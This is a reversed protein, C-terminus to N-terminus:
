GFGGHPSPSGAQMSVGGPPFPFDGLGAGLENGVVAVFGLEPTVVGFSGPEVFVEDGPPPEPPPPLPLPLPPLAGTIAM